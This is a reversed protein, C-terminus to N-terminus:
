LFRVLRARDLRLDVRNGGSDIEAIAEAPVIFHHHVLRGSRIALADPVDPASGYLTAEVVGISRGAPDRVAFGITDRIELM